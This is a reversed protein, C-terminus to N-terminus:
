TKPRIENPDDTLRSIVPRAPEALTMVDAAM